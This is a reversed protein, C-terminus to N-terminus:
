KAHKLAGVQELLEMGNSYTWANVYKGDSMEDVDLGHILFAKNTPKFPGIPGKMTGGFAFKLIVYKGFAWGSAVKVAADPIAKAYTAYEQMLAAKGKFDTPSAIEYHASEDKVSAEYMKKDHKSWATPWGTTELTTVLKDEDPTGQAVIWEADTTPLDPVARPQGPAFGLQQMLTAQDFYGEDRTVAGNSDVWLLDIGKVGAKKGNAKHGMLDGSLTGSSVWEVAIVDPRQFVRTAVFKLDPFASFWMALNPGTDATKVEHVGGPGTSVTVGDPAALALVKAPDHSNLADIMGTAAKKQLDAFSPKPAPAPADTAPAPTPHATAVPPPPPPAQPPPAAADEGGCAIALLPLISLASLFHNRTMPSRARSVRWGPSRILRKEIAADERLGLNGRTVAAHSLPTSERATPDELSGKAREADGLACAARAELLALTGRDIAAEGARARAVVVSAEAFEGSALLAEALQVSVRAIMAADGQARAGELTERLREPADRVVIGPWLPSEAPARADALVRHTMGRISWLDPAREWTAKLFELVGSSEHRSM